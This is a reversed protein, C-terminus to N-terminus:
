GPAVSDYGQVLPYLFEHVGIPKKEAYRNAFDDRELLQAVTYKGALRIVDAFTMKETWESNYRVETLSKDLVKWVQDLYTLSNAKVQDATLQPRTVSAGTPDGIRATFDGILFIVTHGLDQFQRLKRLPVTHGLHIDPASPDIGFKIRLPRHEKRSLELKERLSDKPIEAVVGGRLRALEEDLPVSHLASM